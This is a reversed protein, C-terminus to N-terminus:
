SRTNKWTNLIAQDESPDTTTFRLKEIRQSSTDTIFPGQNDVPLKNQEEDRVRYVRRGDVLDQREVKM